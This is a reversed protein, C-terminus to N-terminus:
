YPWNQARLGDTILEFHRNSKMVKSMLLGGELSAIIFNAHAKAQPHEPFLATALWEINVDFFHKAELQLEEPLVDSESALVGCLCMKKDVKLAHSFLAIYPDLRELPETTSAIINALHEEFRATYRNAIAVGLDAKTPFHYHISASKIGIEKSIERFSFSNYGGARVQSEAIDIIKDVTSITMDARTIGQKKILSYLM